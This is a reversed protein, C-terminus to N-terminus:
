GLGIKLNKVARKFDREIIKLANDYYGVVGDPFYTTYNGAALYPSSSTYRTLIEYFRTYDRPMKDIKSLTKKISQYGVKKTDFTIELITEVRATFNNFPFTFKGRERDYNVREQHIKMGNNPFHYEFASLMGGYTCFLLVILLKKM